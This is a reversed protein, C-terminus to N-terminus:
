STLGCEAMHLGQCTGNVVLAPQQIRKLDAFREGSYKEWERFPAMQSAESFEPWQSAWADTDRRVIVQQVGNEHSSRSESHLM